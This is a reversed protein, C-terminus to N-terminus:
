NSILYTFRESIKKRFKLILFLMLLISLIVVISRINIMEKEPSYAVEINSETFTYKAKFNNKKSLKARTNKGDYVLTFFNIQNENEQFCPATVELYEINEPFSDVIFKLNTEHSGLKIIGTGVELTQGNASLQINEKIYKILLEKFENAEIASMELKPYKKLFAQEIGYQSLSLDIFSGKEQIFLKLSAQQPNHALLHSQLLSFFAVLLIKSKMHKVLFILTILTIENVVSYLM